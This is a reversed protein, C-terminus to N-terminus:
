LAFHQEFKLILGQLNKTSGVDRLHQRFLALMIKLWTSTIDSQSKFVGIMFQMQILTFRFKVTRLPNM